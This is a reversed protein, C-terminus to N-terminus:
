PVEVSNGDLADKLCRHFLTGVTLQDHETLTSIRLRADLVNVRGDVALHVSVRSNPAADPSLNISVSVETCPGIGAWPDDKSEVEIPLVGLAVLNSRHIREFSRALVAGVGLLATGKAAWDRASGTGYNWGALIVTIRGAERYSQAVEHVPAVRGSGM